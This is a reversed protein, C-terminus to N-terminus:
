SKGWKKIKKAHEDKAIKLAKDITLEGSDLGSALALLFERIRPNDCALADIRIKESYPNM